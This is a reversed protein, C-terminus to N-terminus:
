AAHAMDPSQSNVHRMEIIDDAIKEAIMIVAANINGGVLDPMISADVVRLNRVGHVRGAEDVVASPDHRPGMKCTGAPHHVTIGTRAIHADLAAASMDAGPMVQQAIYPSLASQRGIEAIMRLGQHLVHRDKETALFNQKITVLDAPDASRLAVHGRSEPRLLVARCAFGDDYSSKLPHLYPSATMPAANFLFQLDPMDLAADSKLFAMAGSPLDNSVGTGFLYTKILDIIIRDLRMIKHLPGPQKRTYHVAASIHDQLNQGVGPADRVVAIDHQRLHAAPGIGSLMLIQPSNIAGGSVIIERAAQAAQLKGRRRWEVGHAAGNEMLVRTVLAKTIITLNKRARAPRLYAMAASCRRGNRITMQWRCFGEQEEGNYDQTFPHGQDAAAQLYAEVLPDSFTSPQVNLPGGRGRLASPQGCWNELKRFYPLVKEFSWRPLGSAAWRDYDGKHGRVFAMANISSSGGIVKGRACEIARGGMSAEPEAFYMWDHMRKLLLRPWGLPIHIWPDRDWGGAEILLVRTSGDETLRNALTCGASGAGIIIFDFEATMM